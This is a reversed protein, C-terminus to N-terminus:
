DFRQGKRALTVPCTGYILHFGEYTQCGDSTRGCNECVFKPSLSAGQRVFYGAFHVKGGCKLCTAGELSTFSIKIFRFGKQSVEFEAPYSSPLMVMKPLVLGHKETREVIEPLFRLVKSAVPSQSIEGAARPSASMLILTGSALVLGEGVGLLAGGLRDLFHKWDARRRLMDLLVISTFTLVFVSFVFCLLDVLSGTINFQRFLRVPGLYVFSGLSLGIAIGVLDILTGLFGRVLGMLVGALLMTSAIFDIGGFM